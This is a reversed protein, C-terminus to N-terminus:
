NKGTSICTRGSVRDETKLMKECEKTKALYTTALQENETVKSQSFLKYKQTKEKAAAIAIKYQNAANQFEQTKTAYNAEIQNNQRKLKTYNAKSANIKNTLLTYTKHYNNENKTITKSLQNKEVKLTQLMKKTQEFDKVMTERLIASENLEDELDKIKQTCQIYYAELNDREDAIDANISRQETHAKHLESLENIKEGFKKQLACYKQETDQHNEQLIRHMKNKFEIKFLPLM